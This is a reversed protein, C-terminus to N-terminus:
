IETPMLQLTEPHHYSINILDMPYNAGLFASVEDLNAFQKAGFTTDGNTKIIRETIWGGANRGANTRLLIVPQIAEDAKGLEQLTTAPQVEGLVEIGDKEVVYARLRENEAKLQRMEEAQAITQAENSEDLHTYANYWKNRDTQLFAKQEKLTKYKAQLDALDQRLNDYEAQL